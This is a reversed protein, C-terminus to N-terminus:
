KAPQEGPPNAAFKLDSGSAKEFAMSFGSWRWNVNEDNYLTVVLRNWGKRLRISLPTGAFGNVGTLEQPIDDNLKLSIEDDHGLITRVTRASPSFVYTILKSKSRGPIFGTGRETLVYHRFQYTTDLFGAHMQAEQWHETLPTPQNIPVTTQVDGGTITDPLAAKEDSPGLINWPVDFTLWDKTGVQPYQYWFAVSKPHQGAFVGFLFQLSQHFPYPNELHLRYRREHAPAGALATMTGTKHWAFSFYDEGCIGHLVLPHGTGADILAADGGGHNHGSDFLNMGIFLGEGHVRLAPFQEYGNTSAVEAFQAHLYPLHAALASSQRSYGIEVRGPSGSLSRILIRASTRFPMPLFLISQNPVSEMAANNFDAFLYKLPARVSPFNEGDWYIEIELDSLATGRLRLERIIAPGPVILQAPTSDYELTVAKQTTNRPASTSDAPRRVHGTYKLRLGEAGQESILRENSSASGQSRYDIQAYFEELDGAAEMEVRVGRSFFVPLYLNFAGKYNFAPVPVYDTGTAEAAQFLADIPGAISPREEGDVFIRLLVRGPAPVDSADGPVSWTSWIHCISGSGNVELLTKRDGRHLNQLLFSNKAPVYDHPALLDHLYFSRAASLDGARTQSHSEPAFLTLILLALALGIHSTRSHVVTRVTM